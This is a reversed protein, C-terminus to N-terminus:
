YRQAIKTKWITQELNTGVPSTLKQVMLDDNLKEHTPDGVRRGKYVYMLAKTESNGKSSHGNM